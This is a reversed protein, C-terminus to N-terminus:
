SPPSRPITPDALRSRGSLSGHISIAYRHGTTAATAKQHRNLVWARRRPSQALRQAHAAAPPRISGAAREADAPVSDVAFVWVSGGQPVDPIEWPRVLNLRAQM